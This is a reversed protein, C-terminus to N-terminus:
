ENVEVIRAGCICHAPGIVCGFSIDNWNWSAGCESCEFTWQEDSANHCTREKVYVVGDFKITMGEKSFDLRKNFHMLTKTGVGSDIDLSEINGDAARRTVIRASM